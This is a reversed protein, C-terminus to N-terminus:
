FPENQSTGVLRNTVFYTNKECVFFRIKRKDQKM